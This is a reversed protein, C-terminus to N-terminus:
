ESHRTFVERSGGLDATFLLHYQRTLLPIGKSDDQYIPRLCSEVEGVRSERTLITKLLEHVM